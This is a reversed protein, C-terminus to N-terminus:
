KKQIQKWLWVIALILAIVILIWTLWWFIIVLWGIPGFWGGMMDQMQGAMGGDMHNDWIASPTAINGMHALVKSVM